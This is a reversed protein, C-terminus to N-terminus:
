AFFVALRLPDDLLVVDVDIGAFDLALFDTYRQPGLVGRGHHLCLRPSAPYPTIHWTAELYLPKGLWALEVELPVDRDIRIVM